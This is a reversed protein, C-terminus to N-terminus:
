VEACWAADDSSEPALVARQEVILPRGHVTVAVFGELSSVGFNSLLEPNDRGAELLATLRRFRPNKGIDGALALAKKPEGTALYAQALRGTAAADKASTKRARTYADIAENVRGNFVLADGLLTLASIRQTSTTEKMEYGPNSKALRTAAELAREPQRALLLAIVLRAAAEDGARQSDVGAAYSDAADDYYGAYQFVKGRAIAGDPTDADLRKDASELTAAINKSLSQALKASAQATREPSQKM